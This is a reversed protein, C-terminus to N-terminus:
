GLARADQEAQAAKQEIRRAVGECLKALRGDTAFAEAMGVAVELGGDHEVLAVFMPSILQPMPLFFLRSTNLGGGSFDANKMRGVHSVVASCFFTKLELYNRSARRGVYSMLWIPIVRLKQAAPFGAAFSGRLLHRMIENDIAQAPDPALLLPKTELAFMGTLNATSAQQRAFKRMDVPITFRIPGDGIEKQGEACLALITEVLTKPMNVRALARHWVFAASGNRAEGTLMPSDLIPKPPPPVKFRKAVVADVPPGANAGQLPEGRLAAFLDRSVRALGGGDMLAHVVRIVLRVPRCNVVLLEM